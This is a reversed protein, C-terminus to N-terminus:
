SCWAWNLGSPDAETNPPNGSPPASDQEISMATKSRIVGSNPMPLIGLVTSEKVAACVLLRNAKKWGGSDPIAFHVSTDGTAAGVERKTVCSLKTWTVGAGPCASYVLPM